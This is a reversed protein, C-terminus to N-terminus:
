LIISLSLFFFLISSFYFKRSDWCVVEDTMLWRVGKTMLRRVVHEAIERYSQLKTRARVILTWCMNRLKGKKERLQTEKGRLQTPSVRLYSELFIGRNSLPQGSSDQPGAQGCWFAVNKREVMETEMAWQDSFQGWRWTDKDSTGGFLETFGTPGARPNDSRVLGHNQWTKLISWRVLTYRRYGTHAHQRGIPCKSDTFCVTSILSSVIYAIM